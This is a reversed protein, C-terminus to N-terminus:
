KRYKARNVLNKGWHHAGKFRKLTKINREKRMRGGKRESVRKRERKMSREIEKEIRKVRIVYRHANEDKNIQLDELAFYKKEFKSVSCTSDCFM